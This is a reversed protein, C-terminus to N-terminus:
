TVGAVVAAEVLNDGGVTRVRDNNAYFEALRSLDMVQPLDTLENIVIDPQADLVVKRLQELDYVDCVVSTAGLGDLEAARSASRTMGIVEHGAALLAPVLQKGIAGTAGAVFIR